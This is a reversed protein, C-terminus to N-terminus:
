FGGLDASLWHEPRMRITVQPGHERAALDLFARVAEPPLYRAAMYEREGDTTPTTSVVPGEVSVYRVTPEVREVLLSFRGARALARAKASDLGTTFWLEGGAEYAYWVPVALPGRAPERRSVALAGVHPEALFSQREAETLPM